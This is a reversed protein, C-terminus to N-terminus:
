GSGTSSQTTGTGNAPLLSRCAAQAKQFKTRTQGAAGFKVGHKALCQTYKAFTPNNGGGGSRGTGPGFRGGNPLKSRCAQVAKQQAATLNRGFFGGRPRAPTTGTQTTGTQTTGTSPPRGRGFPRSPLTVGHSKLCSQFAQLAAGNRFGSSSGSAAAATTTSTTTAPATGASASGGGGGCGAAVFGLSALTLGLAAGVLTRRGM